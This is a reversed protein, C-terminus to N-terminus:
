SSGRVACGVARLASSDRRASANPLASLATGPLAAPMHVCVCADACEGVWSARACVRVRAYVCTRSCARVDIVAKSIKKESKKKSLLEPEYLLVRYFAQM